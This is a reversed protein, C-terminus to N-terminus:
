LFNGPIVLRFSWLFGGQGKTRSLAKLYTEIAFAVNKPGDTTSRQCGQIKIKYETQGQM